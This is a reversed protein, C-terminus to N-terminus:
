LIWLKTVNLFDRKGYLTVDCTRLILTHVYKPPWWKSYYLSWIYYLTGGNDSLLASRLFSEFNLTTYFCFLLKRLVCKALPCESYISIFCLHECVLTWLEPPKISLHQTYNGPFSSPPAMKQEPHASGRYDSAAFGLIFESSQAM